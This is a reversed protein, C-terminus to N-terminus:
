VKRKLLKDHLMQAGELPGRLLDCSVQFVFLGLAAADGMFSDVGPNIRFWFFFEPPMVQASFGFPEESFVSVSPGRTKGTSGGDVIAGGTNAEAM